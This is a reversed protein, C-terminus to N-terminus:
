ILFLQWRNESFIISLCSSSRYAHNLKTSAHDLILRPSAGDRAERREEPRRTGQGIRRAARESGRCAAFGVLPRTKEGDAQVGEQGRSDQLREARSARAAVAVAHRRWGRGPLGRVP